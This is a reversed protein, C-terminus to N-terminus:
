KELRNIAKEYKEDRGLTTLQTNISSPAAIKQLKDEIMISNKREQYYKILTYYMEIQSQRMRNVKNSSINLQNLSKIDKKFIPVVEDDIYDSKENASHTENLFKAKGSLEESNKDIVTVLSEYDEKDDPNNKALKANKEADSKNQEFVKTYQLIKENSHISQKFLTVYKNLESIINEKHKVNHIYIDQVEKVEDTKTDIHKVQKRLDKIEPLIDEELKNQFQNLEDQKEVTVETGILQDLQELNLTGIDNKIADEKNYLPKMERKYKKLDSDIENSCAVLILVLIFLMIYLSKIKM